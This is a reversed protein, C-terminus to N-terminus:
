QLLDKIENTKQVVMHIINDFEMTTERLKRIIEGNIPDSFDLHNFLEILGLINTIPGRVQHSQLFAIEFLKSNQIKLAEVALTKEKIEKAEKLARSIKQNLVNLRDKLVYDTIGTKILEVVKEEGITGSVLIFPTEPYKKQKINFATVGDFEPMSYDALIIDPKFKNLMDEYARRSKVVESTFYLESKRLEHLILKADDKSDELILIKINTDM